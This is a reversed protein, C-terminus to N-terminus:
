SWIRWIIFVAAVTPMVVWGIDGDVDFDSSAWSFAIGITLLSAAIDYMMPTPRVEEHAVEKM